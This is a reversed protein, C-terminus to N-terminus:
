KRVVLKQTQPPTGPTYIRVAYIGAPLPRLDVTEGAKSVALACVGAMDYIEVRSVPRGSRIHVEGAAPNPYLVAEAVPAEPSLNGVPVPLGKLVPLGGGAPIAWVDAFDWALVSTIWSADKCASLEADAGDKSDANMSRRLQDNVEMSILAHCNLVSGDGVIRGAYQSGATAAITANAAFCNRIIGNYGCIGGAHSSVSASASINGANYCNSVTGDIGCIGGAYSYSRVSAYINGLNYCNSVTGDGKGCIGGANYPASIHGTNYCNGIVAADSQGCIGGASPASVSISGTNYCNDIATYNSYGCIGGASSASYSSVSASIDGANHCHSFMCGNASGCIGGLSFAYTGDTDDFGISGSVGTNKVTAGALCGFLGAYGDDNIHINLAVTYGDGDFTGSFPSASTNGIVTTIGTLDAALRFHFGSYTAGGNVTIALEELHAKSSILYPNAATGSGGGYSQARVAGIAPPLCLITLFIIKRM